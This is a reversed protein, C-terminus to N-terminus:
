WVSPMDEEHNNTKNVSKDVPKSDNRVENEGIFESWVKEPFCKKVSLIDDFTLVYKGTMVFISKLIEYSKNDTIIREIQNFSKNDVQVVWVLKPVNRYFFREGVHCLLAM